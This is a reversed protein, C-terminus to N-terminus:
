VAVFFVRQTADDADSPSLGLRRALRWVFRLQERALQEARELSDRSRERAAVLGLVRSELAVEGLPLQEHFPASSALGSFIGGGRRRIVFFAGRGSSWATEAKM